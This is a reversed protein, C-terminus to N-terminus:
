LALNTLNNIYKQRNINISSILEEHEIFQKIIEKTILESDIVSESFNNINM